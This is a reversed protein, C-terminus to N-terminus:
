KNEEINYGTRIHGKMPGAWDMQMPSDCVPCSMFGEAREAQDPLDTPREWHPWIAISARCDDNSCLGTHITRDEAPTMHTM